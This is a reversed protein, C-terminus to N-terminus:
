EDNGRRLATWSKVILYPLEIAGPECIDECTACYTCRDPHFLAAKGDQWGLAGTPCLPVCAGCGNCLAANIRPQPQLDSM